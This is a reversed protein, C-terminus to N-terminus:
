AHLGPQVDVIKPIFSQHTELSKSIIKIFIFSIALGAFSMLIASGESEFLISGISYGFILFLIPVIFVLFASIIRSSPEYGITVRDGARIPKRYILELHRENEGGISICSGKAACTECQEGIEMKIIVTDNRKRLVTGHEHEM